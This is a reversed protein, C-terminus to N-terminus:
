GQAKTIAARIGLASLLDARTCKWSAIVRGGGWPKPGAVRTNNIALCEGGVGSIVEVEIKADTPRLREIEAIADHLLRHPWAIEAAPHGNCAERLRDVIDAM